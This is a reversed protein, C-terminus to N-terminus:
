HLKTCCKCFDIILKELKASDDNQKFHDKFEEILLKSYNNTNNLLDPRKIINTLRKKLDDNLHYYACYELVQFYFIFKLRVNTTKRSIQFLDLLIPDIKSLNIIEPFKEKTTYCPTEYIKQELDQEFIVINPTERDYFSMYFNLHKALSVFDNSISNFDGSIFFNIPLKNEMLDKIYAPLTDQNYYDRFRRLNRFDTDSSSDTETEQFGKALIEFIDTPKEFTAQFEIGNYFFNFKRGILINDSILPAYIVELKNSDIHYIASLEIPFVIKGFESFNTEKELNCSFTEDNWMKQINVFNDVETIEITSNHKKLLELNEKM